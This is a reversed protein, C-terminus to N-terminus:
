GKQEEKGNDDVLGKLLKYVGRPWRKGTRVWVIDDFSVIYEAGYDTELKLKRNKTSKRTVKASKVKGNSLRFAVLTGIEINEIYPMKQAMDVDVNASEKEVKDEVEVVNEQNDVKCEDKASESENTNEVVEAGLIADILQDKTMDWRGSINLEKALERLEKCTKKQLNERSM